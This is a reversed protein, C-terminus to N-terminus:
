ELIGKQPVIIVDGPRLDINGELNTGAEFAGYDFVFVSEIGRIQRRVQIRHRAAFPGLGGSLAIAQLVNIKTRIVHPGPERVEGTVFIRPKLDEDIKNDLKSSAVVSVTIDLDATYKNLEVASPDFNDIVRYLVTTTGVSKRIFTTSNCINDVRRNNSEMASAKGAQLDLQRAKAARALAPL